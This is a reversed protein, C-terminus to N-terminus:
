RQPAVHEENTMRHQDTLHCIYEEIEGKLEPSLNKNVLYKFFIKNMSAWFEAQNPLMERIQTASCGKFHVDFRSKISKRKNNKYDRVKTKLLTLLQDQENESVGEMHTGILNQLVAASVKFTTQKEKEIEATIKEKIFIIQDSDKNGELTEVRDSLKKFHHLLTKV